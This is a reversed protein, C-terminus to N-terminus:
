SRAVEAGAVKRAAVRAAAGAAAAPTAGRARHVLYAALFVDGAGVAGTGPAPEPPVDITGDPTVLTAGRAGRTVILERVGHRAVFTGAGDGDLAAALEQESAQLVDVHPLFRELAASRELRGGGGAVRVLGQVDLGKLGRLAAATEPLVDRPHLPGLQVVDAERWAAPVDDPGISDSTARLDHRTPTSSYDNAYTTTERSPLALAGVGGARLPALLATEDEPRLRTVIRTRAGLAALALGAHFVVGGPRFAGAGDTGPELDRTVAGVVLARLPRAATATV